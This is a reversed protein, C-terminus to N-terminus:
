LSILLFQKSKLVRATPLLFSKGVYVYQRTFNGEVKIYVFFLKPEPDLQIKVLHRKNWTRLWWARFMTWKTKM